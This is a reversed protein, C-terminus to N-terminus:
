LSAIPAAAQKLQIKAKLEAISDFSMGELRRDPPQCAAIERKVIGLLTTMEQESKTQMIAWANKFNEANAPNSCSVYVPENEKTLASNYQTILSKLLGKLLREDQTLGQLSNATLGRAQTTPAPTVEANNSGQKLRAQRILEPLTEIATAVQYVITEPVEKGSILPVFDEKPHNNLEQRYKQCLEQLKELNDKLGEDVSTKELERKVFTM